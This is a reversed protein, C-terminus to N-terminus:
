DEKAHEVAGLRPDDVFQTVGGPMYRLHPLDGLHARTPEPVAQMGFEVDRDIGRQRDCLRMRDRRFDTVLQKMAEIIQREHDDMDIRRILGALRVMADAFMHVVPKRDVRM